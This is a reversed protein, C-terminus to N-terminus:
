LDDTQDLLSSQQVKAGGLRVQVGAVVSVGLASAGGPVQIGELAAVVTHKEEQVLDGAVLFSVPIQAYFEVSDSLRVEGGGFVNVLWLSQADFSALEDPPQIHDLVGSGRFWLVGGGFTPRLPAAPFLGVTVWPGAFVNRNDVTTPEQAVNTQGVVESAIAYEFAGGTIGVTAGVDVMPHVGFAAQFVGVGSPGSEVSQAAYVDVATLTTSDLAYRGYYEGNVPGNIFGGGARLLVQFRRGQVRKRWVPLTMGSNRYRLYEASSMRLREWPKAGEGEDAEAIDDATLKPRSINTATKRLTLDFGSLEKDLTALESKLVAKEEATLQGDGDRDLDRIDEERGVEGAIAAVLVGAVGEAFEEDRGPELESRFSVAVRSGDVDVIDIDVRTGKVLAQVSGTVAWLAEGREALVFTCGVADGPPCSDMYVRASYDEFPPTDEVRLVRLEGREELAQAVYKEILAALSASEENRPQLAGVLVPVPEAANVLSSSLLLSLM